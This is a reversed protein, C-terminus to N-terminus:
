PILQSDAYVPDFNSDLITTVKDVLASNILSNLLVSWMLKNLIMGVLLLPTKALLLIVVKRFIIEQLVPGRMSSVEPM